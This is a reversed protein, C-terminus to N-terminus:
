QASAATDEDDDSSVIAAGLGAAPIKGRRYLGHQPPNINSIVYTLDPYVFCLALCSPLNHSPDVPKPARYRTIYVELGRPVHYWTTRLDYLRLNLDM